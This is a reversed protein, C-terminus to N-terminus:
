FELFLAMKVSFFTGIYPGSLNTQVMLMSPLAKKGMPLSIM